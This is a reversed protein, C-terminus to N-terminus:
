TGRILGYTSRHFTYVSQLYVCSFLLGFLQPRCCWPAILTRHRSAVWAAGSIYGGASASLPRQGAGNALVDLFSLLAKVAPGFAAEDASAEDAATPCAVDM